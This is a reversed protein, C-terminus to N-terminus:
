PAGLDDGTNGASILLLRPNENDGLFDAALADIESSWSSPRGRDRGDTATLAMAYVRRKEPKSIEPMAIGSATLVGYHKGENDGEHRLLKVSELRHGVAIEDNSSLPGALDGWITLGGMGTGHGDSDAADWDPDVVHLDDDALFPQLLPHGNNVGTDLLCINVDQDM